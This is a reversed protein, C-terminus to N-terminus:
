KTDLALKKARAKEVASKSYKNTAYQTGKYAGTLTGVLGALLAPTMNSANRSSNLITMGAKQGLHSGVYTGAVLGLVGRGANRLKMNSDPNLGYEEELIAKDERSLRGARVAGISSGIGARTIGYTGQKTIM